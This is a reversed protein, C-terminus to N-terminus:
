INYFNMHVNEYISRIYYIHLYSLSKNWDFSLCVLFHYYRHIYKIVFLIHILLSKLKIIKYLGWNEM